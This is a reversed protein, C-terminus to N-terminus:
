GNFRSMMTEANKILVSISGDPENVFEVIDENGYLEIPITIEIGNKLKFRQKSYKKEYKPVNTVVIKEPVESQIFEEKAAQKAGINTEFVKDLVAVADIVNSEDLQEYITKQALAMIEYPLEEYRKAVSNMTKRLQKLHTPTAEPPFIGLLKESFYLQKSGEIEYKKELLQYNMTACNLIFAESPKSMPSTLIAHNQILQNRVGEEVELYHTFSTHYDLRLIGFYREELEDKAEFFLYDAASIQEAPAIISYIQEALVKTLPEFDNEELFLKSYILSDRPLLECKIDAQMVKNVLRNIYDQVYGDELNMLNDSLFLNGADKDLIHLIAKKISLM